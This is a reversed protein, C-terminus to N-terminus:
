QDDRFVLNNNIVPEEIEYSKGPEGPEGPEGKLSALWEEITGKFGMSVAIEYASKGDSGKVNIGTNINNIYVYDDVISIVSGIDLSQDGSYADGMRSKRIYRELTRAM